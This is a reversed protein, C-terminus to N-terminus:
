SAAPKPLHEMCYDNGDRSVRFDLEPNTIDSRKCVACQHLPEDEPISNEVMQRRRDTVKRRHRAQSILEPGFFIAFNALSAVLAMRFSATGGVFQLMLVGALFWALWKVRVPLIAMVYVEMDPYFWAFAFFLSFNLMTNSFQAGFALAALTTGLMGLLYFLNLRFAGWSRELGEGIMWLFGLAFLIWLYSSPNPILIYTFLRWIEGHRVGEINLDLWPLLAPNTKGLLFVVANLIVIMRILGPIAFRGLHRELTDILNMAIFQWAKM